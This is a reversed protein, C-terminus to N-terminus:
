HRPQYRATLVRRITQASLRAAEVSPHSYEDRYLMQGDSAEYSCVSRPCFVDMLDVVAIKGNRELSGLAADLPARRSLTADRSLFKCPGGFPAFWQKAAVDPACNAERAHPNGHLVALRVGTAALRDSLSRLGSELIRLGADSQSSRLEPSFDSLDNIAFVWDGERLKSALAPLVENWYYDNAKNWPGTNAIGPAPSAGWSSTMTVAYGDSRVLEDFAAVFAASFSNGVVLVRRTATAPDGLTCGEVPITKGVEANDTLVCSKGKWESRGDVTRYPDTLTAVGKATMKAPSGTYLRGYLPKALTLLVGAVAVSAALGYAITRRSTRAWEASRLPRELYRYSGGALLLMTAAQLPVSWGYVGITWHSLVIVVWHWLYLSYSTKGFYVATPNSLVRFALTEPRVAAIVLGTLAVVAVTTYASFRAPLWLVAVLATLLALPAMPGLRLAGDRRALFVYVLCGAGLEWLRAPMLYFAAAPNRSSLYEFLALSAVSSLGVVFGFTVLGTRRRGLGTFWVVFPFAFYYQEEVGLSWTHTFVNLQASAGFYDTAQFFLHLNSAGYLAALGTRLSAKPTQDFLSIAVTAVLTCVALAPVLRKIRRVYFGLLLDVFTRDNRKALSATIVYGSIVFFIDVGLHGSPMLKKDLHNVIVAIVALARLGDIEPSYAGHASAKSGPSPLSGTTRSLTAAPLLPRGETAHVTQRAIM